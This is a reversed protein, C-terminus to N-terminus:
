NRNLFLVRFIAGSGFLIGLIIILWGVWPVYTLFGFIPIGVTVSWLISTPDSSLKEIVYQGLAVSTMIVSFGLILTWGMGSLLALPIGVVMFSFLMMLPPPVFCVVLGWGLSPGTNDLISSTVNKMFVPEFLGIVYGILLFALTFYLYSWVSFGIWTQDVTKKKEETKRSEQKENAPYFNISGEISDKNETFEKKSSYHLDGLIRADDHLTLNDVSLWSSKGITSRINITEGAGIFDRAISGIVDITYAVAIFDGGTRSTKALTISEAVATVSQKIGDDITLSYAGGRVAGEVPGNVELEQAFCIVDGDIAANIEVSRGICYLDGHVPSQIKLTEGGVFLSGDPSEKVTTSTGWQFQAGSSVSPLLILGSVLLTILFCNFRDPGECM